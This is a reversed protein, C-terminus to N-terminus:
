NEKKLQTKIAENQNQRERLRNRLGQIQARLTAQQENYQTTEQTEQRRLINRSFFNGINSAARSLTGQLNRSEQNIQNQQTDADRMGQVYDNHTNQLEQITQIYNNLLGLM